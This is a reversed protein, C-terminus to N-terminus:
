EVLGFNVRLEECHGETPETGKVIKQKIWRMWEQRTVLRGGEPVGMSVLLKRAGSEAAEKPIGQRVSHDVVQSM